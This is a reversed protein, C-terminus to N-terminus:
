NLHEDFFSAIHTLAQKTEPTPSIQFDHWMCEWVEFTVDVGDARMKQAIVSGESLFVERNGNQILTPPFEDFQGYIPSIYPNKNDDDGVYVEVAWALVEKSLMRDADALTTFTDGSMTFDVWPSMLAIAAPLPEGEDRLALMTAITLGGGASDGTVVINQPSFGNELLYRYAAKADELAAPFSHEPALRYKVALVNLHVGPLTAIVYPQPMLPNGWTYGGGHLYLIVNKSNEDEMWFADAGNADIATVTVEQDKLLDSVDHKYFLDHLFFSQSAGTEFTYQIQTKRLKILEDTSSVIVPFMNSYIQNAQPSVGSSCYSTPEFKPVIEEQECEGGYAFDVGTSNLMCMNGYTKGDVGCVPAYELTCIEVKPEELVKPAESCLKDGCVPSGQSGSKRLPTGESKVAEADLIIDFFSQSTSIGIALIFPIFAFTILYKKSKVWL